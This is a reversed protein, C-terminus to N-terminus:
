RPLYMGPLGAITTSFWGPAPPMVEALRRALTNAWSPETIAVSSRATGSRAMWASGFTGESGNFRVQSPLREDYALSAYRISTMALLGIWDTPSSLCVPWEIVSPPSLEADLLKIKAVM